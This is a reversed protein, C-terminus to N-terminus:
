PPMVLLPSSVPSIPMPISFLMEIPPPMVLVPVIEAAVAISKVASPWDFVKL